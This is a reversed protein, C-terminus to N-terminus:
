LHGVKKLSFSSDDCFMYIVYEFIAFEFLIAIHLIQVNCIGVFRHFKIVEVCDYGDAIAYFGLAAYLESAPGIIIRTSNCANDRM